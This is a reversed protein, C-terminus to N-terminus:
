SEIFYLLGVPLMPLLRTIVPMFSHFQNFFLSLHALFQLHGLHLSEFKALFQCLDRLAAEDLARSENLFIIRCYMGLVRNILARTAIPPEKQSM